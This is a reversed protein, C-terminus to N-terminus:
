PVPACHVNKNEKKGKKKKKRKVAMSAAYPLEWALPWIPAVAAPRCWLLLLSPDSGHRHGVCVAWLLEHIGSGCGSALSWLGSILCM